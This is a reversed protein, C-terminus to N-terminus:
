RGCGHAFWGILTSIAISQPLSLIYRATSSMSTVLRATPPIRDTVTSHPHLSQRKDLIIDTNIYKLTCIAQVM